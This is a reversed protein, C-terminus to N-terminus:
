TLCPKTAPTAILQEEHDRLPSRLLLGDLFISTRTEHCLINNALWLWAHVTMGLSRWPVHLAWRPCTYALLSRSTVRPERASLLCGGSALRSRRMAQWVMGAATSKRSDNQDPGAVRRESILRCWSKENPSWTIQLSTSTGHRLNKACFLVAGLQM